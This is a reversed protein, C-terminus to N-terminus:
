SVEPRRWRQWLFPVAFCAAPLVWAGLGDERVTLVLGVACLVGVAVLLRAIRSLVTAEHDSLEPESPDEDDAEDSWTSEILAVAITLLVLPLVLVLLDSRRLTESEGLWGRAMALLLIGPPAAVMLWLPIHGRRELVPGVCCLVVVVGIILTEM